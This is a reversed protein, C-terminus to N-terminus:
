TACYVHGENNKLDYIGYPVRKGIGLKPFDNDLVEIAEKRWTKGNNKFNGILEKKKCDVSIVPKGSDLFLRKLKNLRQFQEDRMPHDQTSKSKKNKKLSIGHKKLSNWITGLSVKIGKAELNERMWRLDKRVWRREKIPDGGTEDEILRLLEPEYRPDAEAKALRGGGERRIRSGQSAERENLEKVGRRVTKEDLGTLRAAKQVGGCGTARALFGALLRRDRENYVSFMFEIDRLPSESAKKQSKRHARYNTGESNPQCGFVEKYRRVGEPTRLDIEEFSTVGSYDTVNQQTGAKEHTIIRIAM